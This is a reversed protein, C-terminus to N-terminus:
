KKNRYPKLVTFRELKVGKETFRWRATGCSVGSHFALFQTSTVEHEDLEEEKANKPL